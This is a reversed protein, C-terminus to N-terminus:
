SWWAQQYGPQFSNTPRPTWGGGGFSGRGERAFTSQARASLDRERRLMDSTAAPGMVAIDSRLRDLDFVSQRRLAETQAASTAAIKQAAGVQPDAIRQGFAVSSGPAVSAARLAEAFLFANPGPSAAGQLLRNNWEAQLSRRLSQEANLNAVAQSLFAPVDPQTYVSGSLVPDRVGTNPNVYKRSELTKDAVTQPTTRLIDASLPSQAVANVPGVISKASWGASAGPTLGRFRFNYTEAM